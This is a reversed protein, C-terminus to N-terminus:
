RFCDEMDNEFQAVLDNYRANDAPKGQRALLEERVAGIESLLRGAHGSIRTDLIRRVAAAVGPATGSSSIGIVLDDRRVLAPFYFDCNEPSDAANVLIGSERCKRSIETNLAYDDTAAIVMGCNDLDEFAFVKKRLTIDGRLKEFDSVFDPAVVTIEATYERLQWAKRFAVDGGGAILVRCDSLNIFIPFFAM